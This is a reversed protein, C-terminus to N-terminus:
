VQVLDEAKLYNILAKRIDKKNRYNDIDLMVDYGVDEGTTQNYINFICAENMCDTGISYTNGKYDVSCYVSTNEMLTELFQQLNMDIVMHDTYNGRVDGYRHFMVAVYVHDDGYMDTVNVQRFCFTVQSSWNYSNDENTIELSEYNGQVENYYMDDFDVGYVKKFDIEDDQLARIIDLVSIDLNKTERMNHEVDYYNFVRKTGKLNHKLDRIISKAKKM